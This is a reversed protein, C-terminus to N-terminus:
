STVTAVFHVYKTMDPLTEDSCARDSYLVSGRKRKVHMLRVFSRAHNLILDLEGCDGPSSGSLIAGHVFCPWGFEEGEM